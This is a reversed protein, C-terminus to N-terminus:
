ANQLAPIDLRLRTARSLRVFLSMLIVVNITGAVAAGAFAATYTGTWDFLVGGFYGGLGMGVWGFMSALAMATGAMRSPVLSRITLLFGTMVGGFCLGFGVAIPYLSALTPAQVFWFVFATQGLSALIYSQLPGYRDAIRGFVLRGLAGTLMLVTLVSASREIGFGLDSALAVVHIMPVAMCVCCFIVATCIWALAERPSIPAAAEQTRNGSSLKKTTGAKPPNRVLFVLPLAIALYGVGLFLYADRWGTDAIIASAILPVAGLGIASGATAIGTAIGRNVNFWNTVAATLPVSIAGHGLAGFVGYLVYLQWLATVQSLLLLCVSMTMGGVAALVRVGYLDSFRGFAIGSVATAAAAITYAIAIQGRQWGFEVALPKLFVCVLGFGGFCLGSLVFTVFVMMWASHGRDIAADTHTM